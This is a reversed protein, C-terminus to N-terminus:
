LAREYGIRLFMSINMNDGLHSSSGFSTWDTPVGGGHKVIVTALEVGFQVTVPGLSPLPGTVGVLLTEQFQRGGSLSITAARWGALASYGRHVDFLALVDLDMEGDFVVMPDVVGVLDLRCLRLGGDLRFAHTSLESRLNTGVHWARQPEASAVGVLGVLCVLVLASRM